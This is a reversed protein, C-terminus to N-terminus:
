DISCSLYVTSVGSRWLREANRSWKAETTPVKTLITGNTFCILILQTRISRKTIVLSMMKQGLKFAGELREMSRQLANKEWGRPKKRILGASEMWSRKEHM